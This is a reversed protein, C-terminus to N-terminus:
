QLPMIGTSPAHLFIGVVNWIADDKAARARLIIVEFNLPTADEHELTGALVLPTGTERVAKMRALNQEFTDRSFLASLREGSVERGYRRRVLTGALRIRCDSGGEIPEVIMLNTLFRAFARSPIDKGIKIDVGAAHKRWVALFKRAEPHSPEACVAYRPDPATLLAIANVPAFSSPM